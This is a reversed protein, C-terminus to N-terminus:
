LLEAKTRIEALISLAERVICLLALVFVKRKAHIYGVDKSYLFSKLYVSSLQRKYVFFALGM